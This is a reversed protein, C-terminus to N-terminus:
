LQAYDRQELASKYYADTRRSRKIKAKNLVVGLVETGSRQLDHVVQEIEAPDGHRADIVLIIAKTMSAVLMADATGLVPPMDVLVLSDEYAALVQPLGSHLIAAPHQSVLGASIIRLTPLDTQHALRRADAGLSVDALGVGALMGFYEHLTPRRLDTDVAVVDRGMSAVAWALNATVASKGEGATCSAIAVTDRNAAVVEFNTNLRRFAEALGNHGNVPNFLRSAPKPFSRVYPIEGIVELGFRRRIEGASRVRPFFASAGIAALVAGILGIVLAAFLIIKRNPSAPAAPPRARDILRVSILNSIPRQILNAAAANAVVAASSASPSNVQVRLVSTGPVTNASLRAGSWDQPSVQSRVQRAFTNTGVQATVGPLLFQIATVSAYDIQKSSPTAILTATAVYRSQPVTAAVVGLGLAVLFIASALLWFRRIAGLLQRLEM